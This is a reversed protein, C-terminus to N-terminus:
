VNAGEELLHARSKMSADRAQRRLEAAKERYRAAGGLWSPGQIPCAIVRVRFDRGTGELDRVICRRCVRAMM